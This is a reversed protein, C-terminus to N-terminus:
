EADCALRFGFAYNVNNYSASYRCSVLLGGWNCDWSGGRVVYSNCFERAPADIINDGDVFPPIFPDACDSCWEWVNGSMDYIGLENPAKTGVPQAGYGPNDKTSNPLNFGYWAVKDINNSGSYAYGKSKDGGRAAYEWEADTPLRYNMGTLANLKAIYEQADDWSVYYMPYNDGVGALPYGYSQALEQVTTGMVATWQAQTVEYKGISFSNLSVQDSKLTGVQVFVFEPETSIQTTSFDKRCGTITGLTMVGMLLFILNRTKM